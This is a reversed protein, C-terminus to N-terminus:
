KKSVTITKPTATMDITLKKRPSFLYMTGSETKVHAGRESVSLKSPYRMDLFGTTDVVMVTHQNLPKLARVLETVDNTIVPGSLDIKVQM